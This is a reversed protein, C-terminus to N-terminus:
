TALESQSPIPARVGHRSLMVVKVLKGRPAAEEALASPAISIPTFSPMLLFLLVIALKAVASAHNHTIM